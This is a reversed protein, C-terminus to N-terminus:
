RSTGATEAPSAISQLLEVYRKGISRVSFEEAREAAAASFRGRLSDDSLLSRLAQAIEAPSGPTVLIGCRGDVVADALGPLRSAVIVAGAGMAELLAVPLGDQDGSAAPVSPFVVVAAAGYERALDQRGLSGLFTVPLGSADAELQERLPGDGVIRLELGSRDLQRFAELLHTVGKKEVLRGVFLIRGPERTVAAAIPRIADLDAGMPLVHTTAPDAGLEVLRERMDSNMTTTAAANRLVARILRRSIPDTLGYLDGGLTTVLKPTRPAAILAVLGQPILWHVHMVDPRRRRVAKRVAILEALFFPPVQLWRSRKSRLNELIAGDAVDEWRRFFFRFRAVRLAGDTESTRGNPVAPVVVATDFAEAEVTALDRVFAPVGDGANTPYTSALVLLTRRNMGSM